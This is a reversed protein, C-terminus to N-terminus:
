AATIGAVWNTIIASLTLLVSNVANKLIKVIKKMIAEKKNTTLNLKSLLNLGISICLAVVGNQTSCINFVSEAM